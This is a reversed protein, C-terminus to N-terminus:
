HFKYFAFSVYKTYILDSPHKSMQKRLVVRQYVPRQNEKKADCYSLLLFVVFHHYIVSSSANSHFTIPQVFSTVISKLPFMTISDKMLHFRTFEFATFYSYLM